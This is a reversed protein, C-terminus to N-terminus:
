IIENYSESTNMVKNKNKKYIDTGFIQSLERLFANTSNLSFSTIYFGNTSKFTNYKKKPQKKVEIITANAM